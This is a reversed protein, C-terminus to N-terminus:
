PSLARRAWGLVGPAGHNGPVNSFMLEKDYLQVINLKGDPDFWWHMHLSPAQISGNAFERLGTQERGLRAILQGRTLRSLETAFLKGTFSANVEIQILKAHPLPGRADHDDFYFIIGPYFLSDNLNGGMWHQWTTKPGFSAVVQNPVMGFRVEGVGINPILDM